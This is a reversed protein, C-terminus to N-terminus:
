MRERNAVPVSGDTPLFWAVAVHFDLIPYICSALGTTTEFM